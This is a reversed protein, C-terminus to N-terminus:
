DMYSAHNAVVICQGEPIRHFGERHVRIGAIRFWVRAAAAVWRRRRPLGPLLTGLVAVAFCPLFTLWAYLGYGLEAISRTVDISSVATSDDRVEETAAKM